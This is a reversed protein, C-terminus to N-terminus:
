GWGPGQRGCYGRLTKGEPVRPHFWDEAWAEFREEIEWPFYIAEDEPRVGRELVNAGKYGNGVFQQAFNQRVVNFVSEVHPKNAPKGIGALQISIRLQKCANEFARSRYILAHDGVVSDAAYSRRTSRAPKEAGVLTQEGFVLTEPLGLYRPDFEPWGSRFPRGAIADILCFVADIAKPGLTTLRFSAIRGSCQDLCLMLDLSTAKGTLPDLAFVDLPSSDFVLVSGPRAAAAFSGFLAKPRAAKSRKRKAPAFTGRARETQDLIENFKTERPVEIIKADPERGEVGRSEGDRIISDPHTERLLAIVHGRFNKKTITGASEQEERVAEIASLLREDVEPAKRPRTYRRDVLGREGQERQAARLRKLQRPSLGMEAAKAGIRDELSPRKAPDYEPRPEGKEARDPDGSKFGTWAENLHDSREMAVRVAESPLDELGRFALRAAGLDYNFGLLQFDDALVVKSTLWRSPRGDDTELHVVAGEFGVVTYDAGLVYIRSGLELDARHEM